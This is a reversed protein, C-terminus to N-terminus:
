LGNLDIQMSLNLEAPELVPIIMHFYSKRQIGALM